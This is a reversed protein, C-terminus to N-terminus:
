ASTGPIFCTRSGSFITKWVDEPDPTLPYFPIGCLMCGIKNDPDINHGAVTCLAAAVLQYHIMQCSWYWDRPDECGSLDTMLLANNMEQFPIWWHVLGKFAEFCFSAYRVYDDVLERKMWGGERTLVHLPTSSHWLSVLPEIGRNHMETFLEKYFSIGEPSPHDEKGTPFLRSWSLCVRIMKLGMAAFLDLDEKWHADFDIGKHTPYYTDELFVYEGGDPLKFNLSPSAHENGFKDKWTVRRTVLNTGATLYDQLVPGRKGNALGGEMGPGGLAGGWIFSEPFEKM